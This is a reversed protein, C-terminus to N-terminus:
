HVRAGLVVGLLEEVTRLKRKWVEYGDLDGKGLMADSHDVRKPCGSRQTKPPM